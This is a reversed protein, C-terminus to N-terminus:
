SLTIDAIVQVRGNYPDDIELKIIDANYQSLDITAGASTITQKTEGNVKFAITTNSPSVTKPTVQLTDYNGPLDISSYLGAVVNAQANHHWTMSFATNGLKKPVADAGTEKFVSYTERNNRGHGNIIGSCNDGSSKVIDYDYWGETCLFTGRGSSDLLICNDCVYGIANILTMESTAITSQYLESSLEKVAQAGAPVGANNNANVAEMTDLVQEADLAKSWAVAGSSLNGFYVTGDAACFRVMSGNGIKTIEAVGSAVGSPVDSIVSTGTCQLIATAGDPLATYVQQVTQPAVLSLQSLSTYTQLNQKGNGGEIEEGMKNLADEVTTGDPRFAISSSTHPYYAHGNRDQMEVNYRTLDPTQTDTDYLYWTNDARNSVPINTTIVQIYSKSQQLNIIDQITASGAPDVTVTVQSAQQVATQMNFIYATPSVPNKAPMQDPTIAQIVSFLVEDGDNIKAYLGLTQILYASEVNENSFRATVQVVNDNIVQAMSPQVEQVIDQLDTLETLNTGDPYAYSSTKANSFTIAKGGTLSEAVLNQGAATIVASRYTGM